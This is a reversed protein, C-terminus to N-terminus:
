KIMFTSIYDHHKIHPLNPEIFIIYLFDSSKSLSILEDFMLIDWFKLYIGPDRGVLGLNEDAVVMEVDRVSLEGLLFAFYIFVNWKKYNYISFIFFSHKEM